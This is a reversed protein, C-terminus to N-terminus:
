EKEAFLAHDLVMDMHDVPVISLSKLIQQSIETLNKKNDAPILIKTIGGRRAALLKEKLGGIALVRGRLTVEGTMALDKKIRRGTLASALATAITIGASPGDKPVAGEPVHLHIDLKSYFDKELQLEQWRSRIYSMAAQASEQMVEGLQGTITLKGQGPLTTVEISLLEGGTETWALGTAVGVQDEKERIGYQYQAVGLYKQVQSEGIKLLKDTGELLAKKAFKRMVSAINRDLSRVGSERTYRRIIEYIARDSFRVNDQKLGHAKIQKGLLYRRAIHLKEEESYGEIRIIELRDHLPRPIAHLNNATAVFLVQSLDYDVDLFHDAFSNNQEPDLVELLASSPDGRFDTSMKDIEDLMFVPNNVGVKRLGQIIKGPMAGIYTRRHGRIEAEDRVGGLSVRVFKRQLAKAISQGLSTKGVGPPGVLCLIPGKIQKVLAQVALYELVREKVKQLGYHDAELIEEAKTLDHRDKTGKQWPLALLWEIYNRVVTAEASMPSMMKLKRMEAQIKEMAEKSMRKKKIQEEFHLIEQKFEDQEGLEKQIARMQENLYYEKQSREMQSKVRSRIRSEVQLIEIEQELLVLLHELRQAPDLLELVEQKDAIPIQLHGAVADALRSPDEIGSITSSVEVPVKKSLAVYSEFTSNIARMVAEVESSDAIDEELPEVQAQLMDEENLFTSMHGRWVGEVLVKVTGDPLKLLQVVKGVTGIRYLDDEEPNDVKPDIQSILFIMKDEDAAKELAGISQKRGVFLPVVMYPFIVIDRLPLLPFLRPSPPVIQDVSDSM